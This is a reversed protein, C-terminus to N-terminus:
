NPLHAEYKRLIEFDEKRAPAFGHKGESLKELEEKTLSLLTYKLKEIFESKLTKTNVVLAFAPWEPSEALVRLPFGKIYSKTVSDKLTVGQYEGRLLAEVAQNHTDFFAYKLNKLSIKEKSLIISLSFYSCTSYKQPLAFPGKLEKLKKPGDKHVILYCKYSTRGDPERFYVVPQIHTYGKRLAHMYYPLPGSMILDVEGRVLKNVFEQYDEEYVLEFKVGLKKELLNLLPLFSAILEEKPKYPLPSFRVPNQAYSVKFVLVVSAILLLFKKHM